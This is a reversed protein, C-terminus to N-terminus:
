RDEGICNVVWPSSYTKRCAGNTTSVSESAGGLSADSHCNIVNTGQGYSPILMGLTMVALALVVLLGSRRTRRFPITAAGLSGSAATVPTGPLYSLERHKV